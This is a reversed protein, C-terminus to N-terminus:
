GVITALRSPIAVPAALVAGRIGTPYGVIYGGTYGSPNDPNTALIDATNISQTWTLGGDSSLWMIQQVGRSDANGMIAAHSADGPSSSVQWYWKYFTNRNAAFSQDYPITFVLTWTAGADTSRYVYVDYVASTVGACIYTSADLATIDMPWGGVLPPPCINTIGASSVKWVISNQWLYVASVLCTTDDVPKIVRYAGYIRSSPNSAVTAPSSGDFNAQMVDLTTGDANDSLWWVKNASIDLGDNHGFSGHTTPLIHTWTTGDDTSRWIGQYALTPSDCALFIQGSGDAALDRVNRVDPLPLVKSAFTHGHDHSIWIHNTDQSPGSVAYVAAPDTRGCTFPIIGWSQGGTVDLQSGDFPAGFNYWSSTPADFGFGGSSNEDQIYLPV